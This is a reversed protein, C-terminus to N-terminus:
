APPANQEQPAKRFCAGCMWEKRASYYATQHLLNSGCGTCMEFPRFPPHEVKKKKKKPSPPGPATPPLVDQAKARVPEFSPDPAPSEATEAPAPEADPGTGGVWSGFWGVLKTFSSEPHPEGTPTAGAEEAVIEEVIAEEIEEVEEIEEEWAEEPVSEEVPAVEREAQPTISRSFLSPTLKLPELKPSPAAEEPAAPVPIEEVAQEAEEDGVARKASSLISSLDTQMFDGLADGSLSWAHDTSPAKQPPDEELWEDTHLDEEWSLERLDDINELLFRAEEAHEPVDRNEEAWALRRDLAAEASSEGPLPDLYDLLRAKKVSALFRNLDEQKM